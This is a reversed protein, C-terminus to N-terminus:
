VPEPRDNREAVALVTQKLPDSLSFSNNLANRRRASGKFVNLAANALLWCLICRSMLELEYISRCAGVQILVGLSYLAAGSVKMGPKVLAEWSHALVGQLFGTIAVGLLGFAMYWEGACTVTYTAGNTEDGLLYESLSFGPDVPKGPWFVRPVPLLAAYWLFRWTVYPHADPIAAVLQAFTV